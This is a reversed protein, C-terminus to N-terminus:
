AAAAKVLLDRAGGPNLQRLQELGESYLRAAVPDGPITAAVKTVDAGAIYGIGLKGRLDAGTQSLLAILKQETGTEPLSAVIEGSRADQLRADLRLQSAGEPGVELYSGTVVYDVGLNSRLRALTQSSFSRVQRLDLDKRARAVDEGSVVRMRGGAALETSLMESFATSLWEHESRGTLNEFGLVAIVPRAVTQPNTANTRAAWPLGRKWVYVGAVGCLLVALAVIVAAVPVVTAKGKTAVAAVPGSLQARDLERL